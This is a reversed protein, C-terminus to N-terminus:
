QCRSVWTPRTASARSDIELVLQIETAPAPDDAGLAGQQPLSGLVSFDVDFEGSASLGVPRTQRPTNLFTSVTAEPEGYRVPLNFAQWVSLAGSTPDALQYVRPGGVTVFSQNAGGFGQFTRGISNLLQNSSDAGPRVVYLAMSKIVPVVETCPLVADGGVSSYFDDPTIEFHAMTHHDIADWVRQARAADVERWFANTPEFGPRPFTLVIVPLTPANPKAGFTANEYANLLSNVFTQGADALSVLSTDVDADLLKNIEPGFSVGDLAHPYWLDLTPKLYDRAVSLVDVLSVRLHDHDLDRLLWQPVLRQLRARDAGAKLEDDILRLEILDLDLSRHVAAIEIRRETAVIEHSVFAEFLSALPAPLETVNIEGLRAQLLQAAQQRILTAQNPLMTGQAALTDQQQRMLALVDAMAVLAQQAVATASLVPRVTVSLKNTTSASSCQKDNVVFYANSAGEILISTGGSHVVRVDRVANTAPDTLVVLLSGVPAEPFPTERLRLGTAFAASTRSETSTSESWTVSASATHERQICAEVKVGTAEGIPGDTVCVRASMSLSDTVGASGGVASVAVGSESVSLAYGEPGTVADTLDPSGGASGDPLIWSTTTLACTPTWSGTTQVVLMEGATLGTITHASVSAPAPHGGTYQGDQGDLEFTETDGVQVYAGSDLAAQVDAFSAALSGFAEAEDEGSARLGEINVLKQDMELAKHLRQNTLDSIQAGTSMVALQAQLAAVLGSRYQTVTGGLANARARLANVVSLQSQELLSGQLRNPVTSEFIGTAEYHDHFARAHKYLLWLPRGLPHVDSESSAGTLGGPESVADTIAQTLVGQQNAVKALVTKWGALAFPDASVNAGMSSSELSALITWANRSPTNTSAARCDRFQCAIDHYVAIGDLDDVFPKLADGLLALLPLSRLPPRTLTVAEPMIVGPVTFLASVVAQESQRSAAASLGLAQEAEDATSSQSLGALQADAGSSARVHDWLRGLLYSTDRRQQDDAEFVGLSEARKSVQYWKDLLWLQRPLAGLSTPASTIVGLQRDELALLTKAGLERLHPGDCAADDASLAELDLYGNLLAACDTMAISAVGESAHTDVLRQCRVLDGHTATVLPSTCAAPAPSADVLACSPNIEPYSSYLSMARHLQDNPTRQNILQEGWLEYVLKMRRVLAHQFDEASVTSPSITQASWLKEFKTQVETPTTAPLDDYTLCEQAGIGFGVPRLAGPETFLTAATGTDHECTGNSFTTCGCAENAAVIPKPTVVSQKCRWREKWRKVTGGPAPDVTVDYQETAYLPTVSAANRAADSRAQQAAANEFTPEAAIENQVSTRIASLRSTADNKCATTPQSITGQCTINGCGLNNCFQTCTRTGSSIVSTKVTSSVTSVGNEWKACSANATCVQPCSPDASVIRNSKTYRWPGECFGPAPSSLRSASCTPATWDAPISVDPMLTQWYVADNFFGVLELQRDGDVDALMRPHKAVEWGRAPTLEDSVVALPDFGAGNNRAVYVHDSKIGVIDDRGDGDVDGILRVHQSALWGDSDGLQTSWMQPAAFGGSNGLAVQVGNPGIGILDAYQDGNLNAATRIHSAIRWGANYGFATSVKVPDLFRTGDSKSVWVGSGGFGIIDALGDGNIDALMRPHDASNWGGLTPSFARIWMKMPKFSWTGGNAKSAAGVYVGWDNIGVVDAYGDGTVDGVFRAHSTTWGRQATFDLTWSTLPGFGGSELGLAVVVNSAGFGVVDLLGDGNVDVPMRVSNAPTWGQNNGLNAIALIGSGYGGNEDAKAVVVGTNGFGILDSRGDHNADVVFRLHQDVRWGQDYVMTEPGRQLESQIEGLEAPESSCAAPLCAILWALRTRAFNMM